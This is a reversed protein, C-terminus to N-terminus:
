FRQTGCVLSGFVGIMALLEVYDVSKALFEQSVNAVGYLFAGCICLIDGLTRDAAAIILFYM